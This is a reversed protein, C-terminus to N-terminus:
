KVKLHTRMIHNHLGGHNNFEKLCLGCKRELSIKREPDNPHVKRNHWSLHKFTKFQLDCDQCEIKQKLHDVHYHSILNQYEKDCLQCKQLIKRPERQQQMKKMKTDKNQHFNSMHNLLAKKTTFAQDECKDCPFRRLKLHYSKIHEDLNRYASFEILCVNCKTSRKRHPENRHFKTNHGKLLLFTEFQMNCDQCQIKQKMHDIIYHSM